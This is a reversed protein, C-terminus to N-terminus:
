RNFYEKAARLFEFPDIILCLIVKINDERELNMATQGDREKIISCKNKWWAGTRWDDKFDENIYEDYEVNQLFRALIMDINALSSRKSFSCVM